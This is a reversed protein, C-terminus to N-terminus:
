DSEHAERQQHRKFAEAVKSAPLSVLGVVHLQDADVWGHDVAEVIDDFADEITTYLGFDDTDLHWAGEPVRQDAGPPIRVAVSYGVYEPELADAAYEPTTDNGLADIELKFPPDPLELHFKVTHGRGGAVADILKALKKNEPHTLNFSLPPQHGDFNASVSEWRRNGQPFDLDWITLSTIHDNGILSRIESAEEATACNLSGM